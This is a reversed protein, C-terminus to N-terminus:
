VPDPNSHLNLVDLLPIRKSSFQINIYLLSSHPPPEFKLSKASTMFSHVRVFEKKSNFIIKNKNKKTEKSEAKEYNKKNNKFTLCFFYGCNVFFDLSFLNSFLDLFVECVTKVQIVFVRFLTVISYLKIYTRYFTRYFVYHKRYLMILYCSM